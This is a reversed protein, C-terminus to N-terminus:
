KSINWGNFEANRTLFIFHFNNRSSVSSLHFFFCHKGNDRWLIYFISIIRCFYSGFLDDDDFSWARNNPLDLSLIVFLFSNWNWENNNNECKRKTKNEYTSSFSNMKPISIFAALLLCEIEVLYSLLQIKRFFHALQLIWYYSIWHSADCTTGLELTNDNIKWQVTM